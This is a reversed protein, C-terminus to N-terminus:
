RHSTSRLGQRCRAADLLMNQWTGQRVLGELLMHWLNRCRAWESPAMIRALKPNPLRMFFIGLVRKCYLVSSFAVRLSPVARLGVEVGIGEGDIQIM